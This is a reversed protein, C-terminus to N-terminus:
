NKKKMQQSFSKVAFRPMRRHPGWGALNLPLTVINKINGSVIDFGPSKGGLYSFTKMAWKEAQPRLGQEVAKRRNALLM